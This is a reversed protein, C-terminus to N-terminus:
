SKDSARYLTPYLDRCTLNQPGAFGRTFWVYDVFQAVTQPGNRIFIDDRLMEGNRSTRESKFSPGYVEKFGEVSEISARETAPGFRAVRAAFAADAGQQYTDWLMRDRIILRANALCLREFRNLKADEILDVAVCGAATAVLCGVALRWKNM